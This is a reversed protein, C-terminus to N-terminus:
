YYIADHSIGKSQERGRSGVMPFLDNKDSAKVMKPGGLKEQTQMCENPGFQILGSGNRYYYAM